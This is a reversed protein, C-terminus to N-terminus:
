SYLANYIIAALEIMKIPDEPRFKETKTIIGNALATEIYQYASYSSPVDSFSPNSPNILNLNMAKVIFIVAEMRTANNEPCYYRGTSNLICGSTINRGYLAEIENYTRYTLPVDIFSNKTLNNQFKFARAILIALVSRSVNNLSNFNYTGAEGIIIGDLALTQIAKFYPNSPYIDAYYYLADGSDLLKEQIERVNLDRPQVNQQASLAAAAGAAQGILTVVPQLRTAGSAIHTQSISKEAAILGDMDLPILSGYPIQFPWTLIGTGTDSISCKHLDIPYDGIAISDNRLLARPGSSLSASIDQEKIKILGVIRRSERIYPILPLKDATSYEDDAIGWTNKGLVTQIYYLFGLSYNKSKEFEKKRQEKSVTIINSGLFDNGYVHAPWNIAIKNPTLRLYRVFEDWSYTANPCGPHKISCEYRSAVYDAPKSITKNVRYDKLILVFTYPNTCLDTTQPAHPENTEARSERGLKYKAGSLGIIDGYETADITVAAKFTNQIGNIDKTKVGLVTSENKLVTIVETKYFIDLNKTSLVMQKLVQDAVHPEFCMYSVSCNGPNSWNSLGKNKYYDRIKDVVEKFIGTTMASTHGVWGSGTIPDPGVSPNGDFGSVGAASYMGGLWDTEEILVTKAGLRASQIAAAVGSSSGGVVIVDYIKEPCPLDSGDCNEDLGNGCIETIPQINGTCSDWQGDVCSQIGSKCNGVNIGCTINQGTICSCGEDTSGDCNNDNGDCIETTPEINGTCEQWQGNSCTQSGYRCDGVNSGCLQIAGDICNCGEDIQTDCDNDINDCIEEHAICIPSTKNTNTQNSTFNTLNSTSSVTRNKFYVYVERIESQTSTSITINIKRSYQSSYLNFTSIEGPEVSSPGLYGINEEESFFTIDQLSIKGINKIYVKNKDISIIEFKEVNQKSFFIIAGIALLVLFFFLVIYFSVQGREQM